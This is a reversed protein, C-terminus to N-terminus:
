RDWTRRNRRKSVKTNREAADLSSVPGNLAVVCQLLLAPRMPAIRTLWRAATGIDPTSGDGQGDNVIASQETCLWLTSSVRKGVPAPESGTHATNATSEATHSFRFPIASIVGTRTHRWSAPAYLRLVLKSLQGAVVQSDPHRPM